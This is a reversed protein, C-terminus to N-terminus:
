FGRRKRDEWGKLNRGVSNRGETERKEGSATMEQLTSRRSPGSGGRGETKRGEPRPESIEKRGKGSRFHKRVELGEQLRSPLEKCNRGRSGKQSCAGKVNGKVKSESRNGSRVPGAGEVRTARKSREKSRNAM